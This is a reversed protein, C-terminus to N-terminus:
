TLCKVGLGAHRFFSLLLDPRKRLRNFGRDVQRQMQEVSTPTTNRLQQKVNGHCYEEPNLEPAYPPLWEVGIEPETALYEKVVRSRHTSSRDWIVILPQGICARLHRLMRVVQPGRIAARHHRKYIRGSLTLAAITSLQRRQSKRRLVPPRGRPAWTRAPRAQFSFGTEDV